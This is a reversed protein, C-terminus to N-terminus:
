GGFRKENMTPVLSSNMLLREFNILKLIDRAYKESFAIPRVQPNSESGHDLILYYVLNFINPLEQSYLRYTPLSFEIRQTTVRNFPKIYCFIKTNETNVQDTYKFMATRQGPKLIRYAWHLDSNFRGKFEPSNDVVLNSESNKVIFIPLVNIKHLENVLKLNYSSINGGILPGDIFLISGALASDTIIENRDIVYDLNSDSTIDKSFKVYHSQQNLLESQSYFYFSVKCCPIIADDFIQTIVHTTLQAEGELALFQAKSEDYGGFRVHRSYEMGSKPDCDFVLTNELQSLLAKSSTLNAPYDQTLITPPQIFNLNIKRIADIKEYFADQVIVRNLQKAKEEDIKLNTVFRM